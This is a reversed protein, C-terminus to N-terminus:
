PGDDGGEPEDCDKVQCDKAHEPYMGCHVCAGVFPKSEYEKFLEEGALMSRVQKEDIGANRGIEICCQLSLDDVGVFLNRADMRLSRLVMTMTALSHIIASFHKESRNPIRLPNPKYLDKTKMRLLFFIGGSLTFSAPRGPPSYVRPSQRSM